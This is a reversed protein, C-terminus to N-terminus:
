GEKKSPRGRKRISPNRGTMRELGSIFDPDGIPLNMLTSRRFEECQRLSLTDCGSKILADSAKQRWKDPATLFPSAEGTIHSKASSWAYDEPRTVLGARVPNEAVYRFANITHRADLPASFFRGQWNLGTRSFRYNLHQSYRMHLPKLAKALGTEDLPVLLLHTHNTMLCYSVVSVGAKTTYHVLQKLFFSRDEDDFFVDVRHNGRQTVHHLLKPVVVRASRPM